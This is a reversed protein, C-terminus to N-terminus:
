NTADGDSPITPSFTEVVPERLLMLRATRAWQAVPLPLDELQRLLEATQLMLRQLDGEESGSRQVLV